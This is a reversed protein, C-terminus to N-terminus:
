RKNRVSWTSTGTATNRSTGREGAYRRALGWVLQAFANRHLCPEGGLVLIFHQAGIFLPWFGIQSHGAADVVSWAGSDIGLNERILGDHRSAVIGIDAALAGLAEATEHTFGNVSLFFGQSDALMARGDAALEKLLAPIDREM